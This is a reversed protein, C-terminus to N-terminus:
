GRAAEGLQRNASEVVEEDARPIEPDRVAVASFAALIWFMKNVYPVLYFPDDVINHVLLASMAATVTAGLLRTETTTSQWLLTLANRLSVLAFFLFLALAPFGSRVVTSLYGNHPTNARTGLSPDMDTGSGLLPHELAKYWFHPWRKEQRWKFTDVGTGEGLSLARVITPREMLDPKVVLLAGGAILTVLALRVLKTRALSYRWLCFFFLVLGLGLGAFAGRSGAFLLARVLIALAVLAFVRRRNSLAFLMSGLSLFIPVLLAAGLGNGALFPGGREGSYGYPIAQGAILLAALVAIRLTTRAYDKNALFVVALPYYLIGKWAYRYIQYARSALGTDFEQTGPAFHYSLSLMIGLALWPLLYPVRLLDPTPFRRVRVVWAVGLGALLLDSQDVFVSAVEWPTNFMSLSLDLLLLAPLPGLLILPLALVLLAILPWFGASSM